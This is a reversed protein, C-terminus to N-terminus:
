YIFVADNISVAKIQVFVNQGSALSLQEWSKKSIRALLKQNSVDITAVVHHDTQNICKVIQGELINLVTTRSPRDLSLSVDSAQIRIAIHADIELKAPTYIKQEETLAIVSVGGVADYEVVKGKLLAGADADSSLSANPQTLASLVDGDFTKRGKEMVVLRDCLRQVEQVSHSVYIMPIRVMRHLRDLFPLVEQKRADDLSALPEDLLLVAPDSLLARAIAVRQKEGGSLQAPKRDLLHSIGLMSLVEDRSVSSEATARRKQGYSLNSQVNLHPFLRSDQFVYAVRRQHTPLAQGEEDLWVSDGVVISGRVNRELGALCRLVSTKGSGSDGFIGLVGHAPLDFSVDLSFDSRTLRLHCSGSSNKSDSNNM